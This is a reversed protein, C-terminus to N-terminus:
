ARAALRTRFRQVEGIVPNLPAGLRWTAIAIGTRQLEARQVERHLKWLRVALQEGDNVPRVLDQPAVEVIAVDHGRQKLARLVSVTRRDLLPTIALVVSDPPLTQRPIVDATPWGYSYAVETDLLAAVIRYLQRLGAGPLVWRLSGGFTLLGVQERSRLARRSLAAAARVAQDLTSGDQSEVAGFSDLFLVLSGAREPHFRTAHLQQRRATVKWNVRRRDDGPQFQQVDAYEFGAGSARSVFDGVHQQLKEPKVLRRLHEPTPYVRIHGGLDISTTMKVLGLGRWLHLRGRAPRVIGWRKTRLAAVVTRTGSGPVRVPQWPNVWEYDNSADPEFLANVGSGAGSFTLTAEVRDGEMAPVTGFAVGLSPGARPTLLLGVVVALSFPAAIIFAVPVQFAIALIALAGAIVTYLGLRGSAHATM